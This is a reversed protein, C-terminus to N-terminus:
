QEVLAENKKRKRRKELREKAEEKGKEIEKKTRKKSKEMGGLEREVQSWTDEGLDRQQYIHCLRRTVSAVHLEEFWCTERDRLHVIGHGLSEETLIVPFFIYHKM